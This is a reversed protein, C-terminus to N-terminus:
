SGQNLPISRKGISLLSKQDYLVQLKIGGYKKKSKSPKSRYYSRVYKGRKTTYSKVHVSKSARSQSFAANGTFVAGIFLLFGIFLQRM